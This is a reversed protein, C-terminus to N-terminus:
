ERHAVDALTSRSCRSLLIEAAVFADVEFVDGGLVILAIDDAEPKMSMFLRTSRWVPKMSGMRGASTFFMRLQLTNTKMGM